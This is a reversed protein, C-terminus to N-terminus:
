QIGHAQKAHEKLEAESPFTQHCVSCENAASKAQWPQAPAAKGGAMMMRALLMAVVMGVVLGVVLLLAASVGPSLGGILQGVPTSTNKWFTQNYYVTGGGPSASVNFLQSFQSTGAAAGSATTITLVVTYEGKTAGVWTASAAHVALGADFVGQSFLVTGSTATGAYVSINAASLYDATYKVAITVNGESVAQTTSPSIFTASNPDFVPYVYAAAAVSRVAETPNTFNSYTNWVIVQYEGYPMQGNAWNESTFFSLDIMLSYANTSNFTVSNNAVHDCPAGLGFISNCGAEVFRIEVSVTANFGNVPAGTNGGYSTTFNLAFPLSDYLPVANTILAGVNAVHLTTTEPTSSANVWPVSGNSTNQVQVWATFTYPSTPLTGGNYNLQSLAAYDVTQSYATQGDAVTQTLNAITNAGNTILLSTTVNAATLTANDVTISWAVTLPLDQAGSLNTTITASAQLPPSASPHALPHVAVTPHAVSPAAPAAALGGSPARVASAHVALGVPLVLGILTTLVVAALTWTGLTNGTARLM